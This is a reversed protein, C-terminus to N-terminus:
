LEIGWNASVGDLAQDWVGGPQEEAPLRALSRRERLLLAITRSGGFVQAALRSSELEPDEGSAMDSFLRRLTVRVLAIEDELDVKGALAVLEVLQEPPLRYFTGPTYCGPRDHNSCLPPESGRTAWNRCPFGARTIATCRRSANM